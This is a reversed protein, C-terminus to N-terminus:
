GLPELVRKFPMAHKAHRENLWDARVPIRRVIKEMKGGGSQNACTDFAAVARRIQDQFTQLTHAEGSEFLLLRKRDGADIRYFRAVRSGDLGFREAFFHDLKVAAELM